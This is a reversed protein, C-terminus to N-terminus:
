HVRGYTGAVPLADQAYETGPMETIVQKYYGLSQDYESMNRSIM